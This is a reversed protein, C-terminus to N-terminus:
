STDKKWTWTLLTALEPDRSLRKEVFELRRAAAPFNDPLNVHKDCWILPVEYRGDVKRTSENLFKMVREDEVSRQTDNDYRCGFNETRWWMKVTENLEEDPTTVHVKCVSEQRQVYSPVRGTVTWGIRTHVGVPSDKPGRRIELPVILEAVDSGLFLTVQTGTVEILELDSLYPWKEQLEQLKVKKEPVNLHNVLLVGNLLVSEFPGDLGLKKAVDALMLSCTSGTDLMAHTNFYGKPGYLTVPVVQLLVSTHSSRHSSNSHETSSGVATQVVPNTASVVDSNEILAVNRLKHLFANHSRSCGNVGCQKQNSCNSLWHQPSLCSFCLGHKRVEDLREQVSLAKLKPCSYLQHGQGDGMVCSSNTPKPRSVFNSLFTNQREMM